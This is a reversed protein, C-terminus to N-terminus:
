QPPLIKDALALRLKEAFLALQEPTLDRIMWDPDFQLPFQDLLLSLTALDLGGDKQQADSLSDLIHHGDQELFYLDILDKVEARGLLACIKNALIERTTDVSIGDICRKETDLQPARDTVLDIVESETERSVLFRHFDPSSQLSECKAGISDSIRLIQNKLHQKDILGTTFLDLDYSHRHELYFIGLASGGTLFFRDDENFWARLFDRKLSTCAKSDEWNV